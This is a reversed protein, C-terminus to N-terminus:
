DGGVSSLLTGGGGGCILRVDEHRHEQGHLGGGAGWLGSGVVQLGVAHPLDNSGHPLAVVRRTKLGPEGCLQGPERAYERATLVVVPVRHTPPIGRLFLKDQLIKIHQALFM